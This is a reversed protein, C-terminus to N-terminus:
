EVVREVDSVKFVSPEEGADFEVTSLEDRLAEDVEDEDVDPGDTKDVTVEYKFKM